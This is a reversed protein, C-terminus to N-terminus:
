LMVRTNFSRDLISIEFNKHLTIHAQQLPIAHKRKVCLDSFGLIELGIESESVLNFYDEDFLGSQSRFCSVFITCSISVFIKCSM